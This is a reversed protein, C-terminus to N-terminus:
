KWQKERERILQLSARRSLADGHLTEFRSKIELVRGADATIQSLTVSEIYAMEPMKVGSALVFAGQLGTTLWSEHPLVRINVRPHDDLEALRAVQEAMVARSEIPRSLVGEDLVVWLTPGDERGLFRQRDMRAAVSGEVVDPTTGPKGRFISRAYSETQLLGPVILPQWTRLMDAQQEIEVLRALWTPWRAAHESTERWAALLSGGAHLAADAQRAFDESATREGREVMSIKSVSWGLARALDRQRMGSANRYDRLSIGFKEQPGILAPEPEGDQLPM